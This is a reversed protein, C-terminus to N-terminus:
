FNDTFKYKKSLRKHESFAEDRTAYRNLVIFEEGDYLATEYRNKGITFGMDVTSLFRQKDKLVAIVDSNDLSVVKWNTFRMQSHVMITFQKLPDEM